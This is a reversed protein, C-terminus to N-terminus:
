AGQREEEDDFDDRLQAVVECVVFAGLAESTDDGEPIVHLTDDYYSTVRGSAVDYGPNHKGAAGMAFLAVITDSRQEIGEVRVHCIGAGNSTSHIIV